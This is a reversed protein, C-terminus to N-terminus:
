PVYEMEFYDISKNIRSFTFGCEMYCKIARTNKRDVELTIKKYNDKMLSLLKEINRKCFGLNRYKSNTHIMNIEANKKKDIIIRSTTIIDNDKYIFFYYTNKKLKLDSFAEYILNIINFNNQNRHISIIKEISDRIKDNKEIIDKVAIALCLIFGSATLSEYGLVLSSLSLTPNISLLIFIIPVFNKLRTKLLQMALFYVSFSFIVSQLLSLVGLFFSKTLLSLFLILLPYGAPWYNLIAEKSFIGETLLSSFGKLYNEGDAGLWVGELLFPKGNIEIAQSPINYIVIVKVLFVFVAWSIFEKSVDKPKSPKIKREKTAM